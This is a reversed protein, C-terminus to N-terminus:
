AIGSTQRNQYYQQVIMTIWDLKEVPNSSCLSTEKKKKIYYQSLPQQLIFLVLLFYGSDYLVM